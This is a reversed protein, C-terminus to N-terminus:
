PLNIIRRFFFGAFTFFCAGILLLVIKKKNESIKVYIVAPAMLVIIACCFGGLFNLIFLLDPCMIALVTISGLVVFSVVYYVATYEHKAAGGRM